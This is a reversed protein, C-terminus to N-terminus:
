VLEITRTETGSGFWPTRDRGDGGSQRSYQVFSTWYGLRRFNENGTDTLLLAKAGLDHDLQFWQVVVAYINSAAVREFSDFFLSVDGEFSLLKQDEVVGSELALM